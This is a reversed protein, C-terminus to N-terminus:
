ADDDSADTLARPARVFSYITGIGSIEVDSRRPAPRADQPELNTSRPSSATVTLDYRDFHGREVYNPDSASVRFSHRIARRRPSYGIPV